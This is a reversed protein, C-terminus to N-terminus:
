LRATDAEMGLLIAGALEAVDPGVMAHQTAVHVDRFARQLHSSDSISTMGALHYALDVARAASATAHTGALRLEARVPLPVERGSEVLAWCRGVADHMFARAARLTAEAEAVRAHTGPKAALKVKSGLPTKERAIREVEDVAGRAIGLAAAAVGLALASFVPFAYLPGPHRPRDTAFSVSCERPVTIGAVEMDHSGTGRLGSVHWTDHIKAESAPFLLMRVGPQPAGDKFLIAGGVLWSAHHCGSAFPWRGTLRYGGGTAHAQGLPAPVGGTFADRTYIREAVAPDLWGSLVATVAGIMVTWGTSGDARSAEEIVELITRLDSELGGLARPVALRFFGAETLKSMLEPPLRRDQEIRPALARIEAFLDRAVALTNPDTM